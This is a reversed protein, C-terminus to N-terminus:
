LVGGVGVIHDADRCRRHQRAPQGASRHHSQAGVVMQSELRSTTGSGHVATALGLQLRQHTRDTLRSPQSARWSRGSRPLRRQWSFESALLDAVVRDAEDVIGVMLPHQRQAPRGSVSVKEDGAARACADSGREVRQGRGRGHLQVHDITAATIAQTAQDLMWQANRDHSQMLAFPQHSQQISQPRHHPVAQRAFRACRDHQEDVSQICHPACEVVEVGGGLEVRQLLYQCVTLRGSDADDGSDLVDDCHRRAQQGTACVSPHHVQVVRVVACDHPDIRCANRRRAVRAPQHHSGGAQNRLQHVVRRRHREPRTVAAPNRM